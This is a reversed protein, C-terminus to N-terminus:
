ATPFFCEGGSDMIVCQTEPYCDLLTFGDLDTSGHNVDASYGVGLDPYPFAPLYNRALPTPGAPACAPRTDPANTADARLSNTIIHLSRQVVPCATTGQRLAQLFTQIKVQADFDGKKVDQMLVSAGTYICYSMLYTIRTFGFSREFLLLLKEISDSAARCAAHHAPIYYFPRHLLIITTYYLLNQAIIHPPPCIQPLNDPDYRLHAPSQERWHDLRAQIRNLAEDMNINGRRSYLQLIIDNLIIALKCVNQFSSVLYSKMPPYEGPPAKDPSIQDGYYPAWLDNEASDDLLEPCRDFPLEQLIPMRGLFLSIAKDWFYCSWFLRRRIELDEATLHGLTAIKTTSHHLGLDSVMRFAMGSYLWAQSISGWALERASLQLLGQATPISSPSLIETGLLLRARSILLESIQHDDFRAAHACMVVILFSSYCPGNIAMDRMFAPRYVWNFMPAIWAWYIQLLKSIMQRPIDTQIAANGLAFEEWTKSELAASTLLSRADSMSSHSDNINTSEAPPPAHVASTPGYYCLKGNEDLSLDSLLIQESATESEPAVQTSSSAEIYSASDFSTDVSPTNPIQREILFTHQALNAERAEHLAVRLETITQETEQLRKAMALIQSMPPAKEYRCEVGYVECTKCGPQTGDCRTKRVRCNACTLGRKSRNVRDHGDLRSANDSAQRSKPM